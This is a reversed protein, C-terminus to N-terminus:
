NLVEAEFLYLKYNMIRFLKMDPAKKLQKYFIVDINIKM